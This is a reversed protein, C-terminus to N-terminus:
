GRGASDDGQGDPGNGGVLSPHRRYRGFPVAPFAFPIHFEKGTRQLRLHFLTEDFYAVITLAGTVAAFSLNLAHAM